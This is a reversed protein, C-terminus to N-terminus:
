ETLGWKKLKVLLNWTSIYAHGVVAWLRGRGWMMMATARRLISQGSWGWHTILAAQASALFLPPCLAASVWSICRAKSKSLLVQSYTELNRPFFDIKQPTNAVGKDTLMFVNGACKWISHISSCDSMWSLSFNSHRKILGIKVSFFVKHKM